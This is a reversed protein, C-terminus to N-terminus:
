YDMRYLEWDDKCGRRKFFDEYADRCEDRWDRDFMKYRKFRNWRMFYMTQRYSWLRDSFEYSEPTPGNYSYKYTKHRFRRQIYIIRKELEYDIFQHNRAYLYCDINAKRLLLHFSITKCKTIRILKDMNDFIHVLVGFHDNEICRSIASIIDDFYNVHLIADIHTTFIKYSCVTNVDFTVEYKAMRMFRHLYKDLECKKYYISIEELYKPGILREAEIDHGSHESIVDLISQDSNELSRKLDFSWALDYKLDFLKDCCLKLLSPVTHIRKRFM